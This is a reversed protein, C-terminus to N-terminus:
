VKERLLNNSLSERNWKKREDHHRPQEQTTSQSQNDGYVQKKRLLLSKKILFIHQTNKSAMQRTASKPKETSTNQAKLLM